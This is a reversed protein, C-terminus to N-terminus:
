VETRIAPRNRIPKMRKRRVKKLVKVDRKVKIMKRRKDDAMSIVEKRVYDIDSESLYDIYGGVKGRRFKHAEPDTPFNTAKGKEVARYRWGEPLRSIERLNKRVNNFSCIKDAEIMAQKNIPFEFYTLIEEWIPKFLDEYNIILQDEYEKWRDTAKILPRIGVKLHRIFESITRIGRKDQRSNVTEHFYFSVLVDYHSRLLLIRKMRKGSDRLKRIHRENHVCFIVPIKERKHTYFLCYPVTKVM